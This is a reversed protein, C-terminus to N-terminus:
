GPFPPLNPTPEEVAQIFTLVGPVPPFRNLNPRTSPCPSRTSCIFGTGRVQARHGCKHEPVLFLSHESHHEYGPVTSQVPGYSRANSNLFTPKQHSSFVLTAPSFGRKALLSGSVFEEWM